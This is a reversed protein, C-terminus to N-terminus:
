IIDLLDDNLGDSLIKKVLKNEKEININKKAIKSVDRIVNRINQENKLDTTKIKEVLKFVDEPNINNDAILNLVKSLNM